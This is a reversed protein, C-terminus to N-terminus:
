ICEVFLEAMEDNEFEMIFKNDNFLVARIETTPVDNGYINEIIGGDPNPRYSYETTVRPKIIKSFNGLKIISYFKKKKHGDFALLFTKDEVIERIDSICLSGGETEFIIYKKM